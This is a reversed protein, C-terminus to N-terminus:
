SGQSIGQVLTFIPDCTTAAGNIDCVVGEPAAYQVGNSLAIPTLGDAAFLIHPRERRSFFQWSGDVYTANNGYAMGTYIWTHGDTSFAHGGCYPLGADMSHMVAHFVGRRDVYLYPDEVNSDPMAPGQSCGGCAGVAHWTSNDTYDDAFWPYLARLVGVASGNPLITIATNWDWPVTLAAVEFAQGWPEDFGPAVAVMQRFIHTRNGGCGNKVGQSLTVGDACQTCRFDTSNPEEFFSLAMVLEGGPGVVVDPEHAFAVFVEERRTWPGGPSSATAHVVHSNSEWSNIGCGQEMESAWAHWVGTAADRLMPAGWTSVNHGLADVLRLGPHAPDIPLLQLEACRPGGWAADCACTGTDASCAGNFSCDSDGSCPWLLRASDAGSEAFPVWKENVICWCQDAFSANSPARFLTAAQCRQAPASSNRWLAAATACAGITGVGDAVHKVFAASASPDRFNLTYASNVGPFLVVPPAGFAVALTFIALRGNAVHRM